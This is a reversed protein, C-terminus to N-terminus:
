RIADEEPKETIEIKKTQEVFMKANMFSLQNEDALPKYKAFKVLDAQMLVQKLNVLSAQQTEALLRLEDLIESTTSEMAPVDFRNEIYQRLIDTLETQFEKDRGKQWLQKAALTELASMAVVHAPLLKAKVVPAPTDQKHTQYYRWGWYAALCLLIILLPTFFWAAYDWFVFEPQVVGKIDFFKAPDVEISDFPVVVRLALSNTYLTDGGGTVFPFAPIYLTASDFAFVSVEQRLTLGREQWVTDIPPIGDELELLYRISDDYAVVGGLKAVDPFRVEQGEPVTAELHITTPWGIIVYTSDLAAKVAPRQAMSPALMSIVLGLIFIIRKM